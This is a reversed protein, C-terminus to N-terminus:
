DITLELKMQDQLQLLDRLHVSLPGIRCNLVQVPPLADYNHQMARSSASQNGAPTSLAPAGLCLFADRDKVTYM